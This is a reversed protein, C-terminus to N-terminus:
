FRTQARLWYEDSNAIDVALAIDGTSLVRNVWFTLGAADPARVLLKQYMATVRVQRSEVSQYFQL